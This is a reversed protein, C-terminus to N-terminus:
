EELPTSNAKVTAWRREAIGARARVATAGTGSFRTNKPGGPAPLPVCASRKAARCRMGLIEVPSMSRFAMWSRRANARDHAVRQLATREDAVIEDDRMTPSRSSCGSVAFPKTSSPEGACSEAPRRGQRAPRCIAAADGHNGENHVGVFDDAAKGAAPPFVVLRISM